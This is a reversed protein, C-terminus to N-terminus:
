IHLTEASKGVQKKGILVMQWLRTEIGYESYISFYWYLVGSASMIGAFYYLDTNFSNSACQYGKVDKDHDPLESRSSSCSFVNGTLINSNNVGLSLLSAPIDGSINNVDLTLNLTKVNSAERFIDLTGNIRNKSLDLYTLNASTALQQPLTGDLNNGTLSIAV